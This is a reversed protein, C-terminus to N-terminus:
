PDLTGTPKNANWRRNQKLSIDIVFKQEFLFFTYYLNELINKCITAEM